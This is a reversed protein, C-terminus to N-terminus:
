LDPDILKYPIRVAKPRYYDPNMRNKVCVPVCTGYGNICYTVLLENKGNDYEPHAIASYFFPHHGELTDDVTWITQKNTFPGEPTNSTLSYIEKGQDCGVSFATLLLIFKNKLRFVYFQSTFFDFIKAATGIDKSWTSGNFYEWDAYLNNAPFRAVLLDNGFGNGRTGYIYQYNGSKAIGKSFSINNRTGLFGYGVNQMTSIKIKAVYLSDVGEFGFSGGSPKKHIREQFIFATDGAAYGCGPWFWYNHDTGLQYLSKPSGTGIYTQQELPNSIGMSLGANRVQFLCPVTQTVADFNGIYSDGFSWLSKNNNLSVSIAADGAIWDTTRRFYETFVTDKYAIKPLVIEPKPTSRNKKCAIWFFLVIAVFLLFRTKHIM